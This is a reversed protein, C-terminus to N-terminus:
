ITHPFHYVDELGAYFIANYMTTTFQSTGGGINIPATAASSTRRRHDGRGARLGEGRHAARRARQALLDRGPMVMAGDVADAILQINIVRNECCNHYTTFEPSRTASASRRPTRPPTTPRSRHRRLRAPRDQHGISVAAEVEDALPELDPAQASVSPVLTM